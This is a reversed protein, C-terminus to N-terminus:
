LSYRVGDKQILKKFERMLLETIPGPKGKGIIRGDIKVVPVIEAATGTLFCEDSIYLEHRTIVHEHTSIKLRKAIELVVDRTIGRLTGMCQPPTYINRNRVIFINDGTCEAVYGLSDLMVAEAFGANIAEIKALINNLYNLSKIQPNLAEPLNRITPVTIIELGKQYYEKPYLTIKDTIIILTERGRCKRPDLGLDGEGRTVVVRIYADRLQNARLTDIIAKKIQSKTYPINLMLTHASEFLREIHEKLKFVLCNYSRIGEFVGDGYLLGHDFVSIKAERKDFLKGNIFVKM